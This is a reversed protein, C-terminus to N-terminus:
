RGDTAGTALARIRQAADEATWKPTTRRNRYDDAAADCVAAAEALAAARVAARDARIADAADSAVLGFLREAFQEPTELDAM